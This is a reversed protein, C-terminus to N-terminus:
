SPKRAAGHCSECKGSLPAYIVIRRGAVVASQAHCSACPVKQHAGKLAFPTDRDHDFRSAPQFADLSHCSQCPASARHSFQGGHPDTHCGECTGTARSFLIPPGHPASVILTSRTGPRKMEEHCAACPVARHAGELPFGYGEHAAVDVTSPRFRRTDHCALCGSQKPRTGTAGFRGDHPDLHCAACEIEKLRLAVGARGLTAAPPLPGLGKRSPGHCASCAIERHRGELPLRLTAHEVTGFTSPIWGTVAHCATCDDAARRGALQGGHDDGHCDRCRGFAPRLLTGARGLRSLGPPNKVHCASCRVQQHKGELPYRSQRHQAVTFTGPTFGAVDHCSACDAPHGALTATGAHPDTHCSMCTAFPPRKGRPSAPDHCKACSVLTHRGRLPYKTRDHDFASRSVKAFSSTEHCTGCKPGLDGGHPDAHCNSCEAHPLPKYVPIPQGAANSKTAVARALHCKDCAVDTHKGTLPYDTRGHDFRPAPKWDRTDHCDLCKQTLAGRHVDEHCSACARDLGLWGPSPARRRSLAAAPSRRLAAKHCDACKTTRHAGDLPWGTRAHDFRTSDGEAWNILAFDTGAHDPHCSACASKAERGHLGLGRSALWAVDKHCDLCQATM